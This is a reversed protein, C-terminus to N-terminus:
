KAFKKIIRAFDQKSRNISFNEIISQIDEEKINYPNEIMQKITKAWLPLNLPLVKLFDSNKFYKNAGCNPSAIVPTGNLLSEIIIRGFAETYFSPVLTLQAKQYIERLKNGILHDYNLIKEEKGRMKDPSIVGGVIAIKYNRPIYNVLRLIFDLGKHSPEYRPIIFLLIKEKIPSQYFDLNKIPTINIIEIKEKKITTSLFSKMLESAVLNVTSHNFLFINLKCFFYRIKYNLSSLTAEISNQWGKPRNGILVRLTKWKDICKYCTSRDILNPCAKGYDIIDVYKPCILHPDRIINIVPVKKILGGVITPFAAGTQTLIINPKVKNIARIIKPIFLYFAIGFPNTFKRRFKRNDLSIRNVKFNKQEKLGEIINLFSKAAGGPSTKDYPFSVALIKIM